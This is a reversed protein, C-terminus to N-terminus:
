PTRAEESDAEVLPRRSATLWTGWAPKETGDAHLLGISGFVGFATGEAYAPDWGAFWIAVPMRLLAAADVIREVFAAQEGESGGGQGDAPPESSFGMEAIVIPADTFAQLQSYYNAPIDETREFAFSPYTSIATVDTKGEFRALLQWSPFHRNETPLLSQMDEYQFTVTVQTEPSVSKVREYAVAYVNVFADTEEDDGELFLNMEVGLALYTPRYNIAVYEAYSVFAAQVDPDQFTRGEHSAPLGALRDRGTASDTPDISFFLGLDHEEVAAIEAATTDATEDSVAGGPLFDSWPPNRQILVMEGAEGALRFADVYSQANLERPLTSIGMKFTRTAGDSPAPEDDDGGFCGTAAVAIAALTFGRVLLRFTQRM